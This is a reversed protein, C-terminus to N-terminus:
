RFGTEIVNGGKAVDSWNGTFIPNLDAPKVMQFERDSETVDHEVIWLPREVIVYRKKALKSGGGRTM